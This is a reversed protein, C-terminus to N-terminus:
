AMSLGKVADNSARVDVAVGEAPRYHMARLWLTGAASKPYLWAIKRSNVHSGSVSPAVGLIACRPTIKLSILIKMRVVAGLSRDSAAREIYALPRREM